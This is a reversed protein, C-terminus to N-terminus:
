REMALLRGGDMTARPGALSPSKAPRLLSAVAILGAVLNGITWAVAMLTLGASSWLEALGVITIFSAINLVVLSTLQGRLKLLIQGFNNLGVIPLAAALVILPTTANASYSPGYVLLAWHAAVVVIIAIGVTLPLLVKGARRALAGLDVSQQSGEALLSSSMGFPVAYTLNALNFAIFFYAARRPGDGSVVIVPLVLLPLLQFVNGVYNALSFRLTRLFVAIDIRLSPRYGVRWVLFILSAVVAVGSALGTSAFIGFASFALFGGLLAVKTIGQVVGDVLFNYYARRRAIFVSDTLLNAAACGNLVVFAVANILHARLFGVNPAISPVVVLYGVAIVMALGTSLVLATNIEADADQSTPLVRILTQSLGLDSVYSIVSMASIVTTARGISVSSCLHAALLWFVFGFLGMTWTSLMLFLSNRVLHDESLRRRLTM